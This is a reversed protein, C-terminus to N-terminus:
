TARILPYIFRLRGPQAGACRLPAVTDRGYRHNIEAVTLMLQARQTDACMVGFLDGAATAARCIDRAVIGCGRYAEGERYIAALAKRAAANFRFFNNGPYTLRIEYRECAFSKLRVFVTLRRALLGKAVLETALRAVHRTLHAAILRRDHTVVGLSATKAVSKPLGPASILPWVAVGNLEHWLDTGSRGLLHRIAEASAAAFAAASVMGHRELLAARRSGIGPIDRVHRAMLFSTVQGPPVVTSGDPKNSESAMKALTRTGSIGVSVTIGLERRIAHRIDDAMAADGGAGKLGLFGEDISYHEMEPSFRALVSFMRRSMQGYYAFDASLFVAGSCRRRAEWVPMGTTIGLAKADYTKAVVCADQSSLVCLPRGRLAPRRVLECAAYFCDADVHAVCQPWASM